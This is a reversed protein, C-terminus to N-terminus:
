DLHSTLDTTVNDCSAVNCTSFNHLLLERESPCSQSPLIATHVRGQELWPIARVSLALFMATDVALYALRVKTHELCFMVVVAEETDRLQHRLSATCASPACLFFCSARSTDVAGDALSHSVSPPFLLPPPCFLYRTCATATM